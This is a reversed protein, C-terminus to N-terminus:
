VVTLLVAFGLQAVLFLSRLRAEDRSGHLGRGIAALAQKPMARLAPWVQIASFLLTAFVCISMVFLLTRGSVRAEGIRLVGISSCRVLSVVWRSLAAGLLAGTVALLMAETTAGLALHRASAGLARRLAMEGKRVTGRVLLLNLVNALAIALLLGSAGLMVVF